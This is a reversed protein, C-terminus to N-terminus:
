EFQAGDSRETMRITESTYRIYVSTPCLRNMHEAKYRMIRPLGFSACSACPKHVSISLSHNLFSKNSLVHNGCAKNRKNCNFSTNQLAPRVSTSRLSMNRGKNISISLLQNWLACVKKM